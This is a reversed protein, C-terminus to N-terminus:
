RDNPAEKRVRAKEERWLRHLKDRLNRAWHQFALRDKKDYAKRALEFYHDCVKRKKTPRDLPCRNGDEDFCEWPMGRGSGDNYRRCCGCNDGNFPLEDDLVADPNWWGVADRWKEYSLRLATLLTPDADYRRKCESATM